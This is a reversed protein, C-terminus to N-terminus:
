AVAIQSHCMWNYLPTGDTSVLTSQDRICCRPGTTPGANNNAIGDLAFRLRGGTGTPIASLTVTLHTADAVTVSSVNVTNGDGNDAWKIGRGGPDSVLATDITLSGTPVNCLVTIVAGERTASVPYLPEWQGGSRRAAMAAGHMEWMRRYGSNTLHVGDFYPFQYKPGVCVFKAPQDLAAQLQALPVGDAVALNSYRTWSSCQDLFIVIDEDQGTIQKIDADYDSHLESLHGAYTAQADGYNNEGQIWNLYSVKHQIGGLMSLLHGRLVARLSNRYPTTGKKLASYPKGSVGHASYLVAESGPLASLLASIARTGNTVNGDVADTFASLASDPLVATDDATNGPILGSAFMVGRGPTLPVTDLGPGGQFSISLSQGITLIHDIHTVSGSLAATPALPIDMTKIVEAGATGSIWRVDAQRVQPLRNDGENFTLLANLGSPSVLVINRAGVEGRETALFTESVNTNLGHMRGDATFWMCLFGSADAIGWVVDGALVEISMGEVSSHPMLHLYGHEDWYFNTRANDDTPAWIAREAPYIPAAEAAGANVAGALTALEGAITTTDTEPIPGVYIWAGSGVTGTKKYIGNRVGDNYVRAETDAPYNLSTDMQAQTDFPVRSTAAVHEVAALRSAIPGSAALQVALDGTAQLATSGDRNVLLEDSVATKLALTTTSVPANM